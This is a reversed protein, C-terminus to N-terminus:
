GPGVIALILAPPQGPGYPRQLLVVQGPAIAWAREVRPGLRAPDVPAAAPFRRAVMDHIRGTQGTRAAAAVACASGDAALMVAPRRDDVAFSRIAGDGSGIGPSARRPVEVYDMGRLAQAAAGPPTDLCIHEFVATLQRPSSKPLIHAPHINRLEQADPGQPADCGALAALCFLLSVRGIVM